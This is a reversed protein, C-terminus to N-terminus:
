KAKSKKAGYMALGAEEVLENGVLSISVCPEIETNFFSIEQAVEIAIKLSVASVDSSKWHTTLDKFEKPTYNYRTIVHYESHSSCGHEILPKIICVNNADFYSPNESYFDGWLDSWGKDDWEGSGALVGNLSNKEGLTADFGNSVLYECFNRNIECNNKVTMKM